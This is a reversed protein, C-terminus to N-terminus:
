IWGTRCVQVGRRLGSVRLDLRDQVGAYHVSRRLCRVRLDLRDQVGACGEQVGRLGSVRLDLKDQM